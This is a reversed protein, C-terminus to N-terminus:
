VQMGIRHTGNILFNLYNTKFANEKNLFINQKYINLAFPLPRGRARRKGGDMQKDKVVAIDM